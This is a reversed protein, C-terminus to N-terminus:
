AISLYPSFYYPFAGFSVKELINGYYHLIFLLRKKTFTFFSYFATKQFHTIIIHFWKSIDTLINLSFFRCHSYYLITTDIFTHFVLTYYKYHQICTRVQLPADWFTHLQMATSELIYTDSQMLNLAGGAGLAKKEKKNNNHPSKIVSTGGGPPLRLSKDFIVGALSGRVLMAYQFIKHFYQNEVIMKTSLVAVLTFAATLAKVPSVDNAEVLRLLRAVLLAPLAQISTNLLRLVGTTILLKKQHLM